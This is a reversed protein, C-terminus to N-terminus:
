DLRATGSFGQKCSLAKGVPVFPHQREWFGVLVGSLSASGSPLSLCFVRLNAAAFEGIRARSELPLIALSLRFEVEQLYLELSNFLRAYSSSSRANIGDDAWLERRGSGPRGRLALRGM